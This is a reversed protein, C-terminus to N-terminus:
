TSRTTADLKVRRTDETGWDGADSLDTNDITLYYTGASLRVEARVGSRVGPASGELYQPRIGEKQETAIARYDEFKEPTYLLVDFDYNEDRANTATYELVFESRVSFEWAWYNERASIRHTGTYSPYRTGDDGTAPDTGDATESQAGDTIDSKKQVDADEPAYDESDIM